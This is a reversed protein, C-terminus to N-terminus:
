LSMIADIEGNTIALIDSLIVDGTTSIQLYKGANADGLNKNLKTDLVTALAANDEPDGTISAFNVEAPVRSIVADYTIDDISAVIAQINNAFIINDGVALIAGPIIPTLATTDLEILPTGISGSPSETSTFDNPIELASVSITPNKATGGITVNSTGATIAEVYNFGTANLDTLHTPVTIDVNRSGDAPLNTGNKSISNITNVEADEAITGLKDQEETTFPNANVVELQDNTLSDQKLALPTELDIEAVKDTVVTTGDVLVDDITGFHNLPYITQEGTEDTGYVIDPDTQKEVYNSLDIARPELLGSTENIALYKGGQAIDQTKNLKTDLQGQIKQNYYLLGNDDLFKTSAM